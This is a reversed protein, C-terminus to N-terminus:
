GMQDEITSRSADFLSRKLIKAVTMIKNSVNIRKITEKIFKAIKHMIKRKPGRSFGSKIYTPSLISQITSKPVM